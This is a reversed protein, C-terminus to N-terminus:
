HVAFSPLRATSFQGIPRALYRVCASATAAIERFSTCIFM